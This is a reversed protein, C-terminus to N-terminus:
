VDAVPRKRVDLSKRFSRGITGLALLVVAVYAGLLLLLEWGFVAALNFMFCAVAIPAFRIILSMLRMSAHFIGKIVSQLADASKTPTILLGIGFILAFVIVALIDNDAAAAVINNPIIALVTAVGQPKESQGLLFAGAFERADTLLRQTLAPDVGSGPLIWYTFALALVVAIGSVTITFVLTRLGVRQLSRVDGMEAIGVVLASFLLPIVLMFLLRLFIQAIPGTVYTSVADVWGPDSSTVNAILGATFGVIFGVLIQLQLGFGRTKDETM